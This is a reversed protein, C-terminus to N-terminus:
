RRRQRWIRALVPYRWSYVPVPVPGASRVLYHDLRLLELVAGTDDDNGDDGVAAKLDAGTMAEVVLQDLVLQALQAREGYYKGVRTLFHTVGHSEDLDEICRDFAQEVATATVSPVAHDRLHAAVLHLLYPIGGTVSALRDVAAPDPRETVGLLLSEALWRAWAADLPGLPLNQMDNLVTSDAGVLPLVHYLGVSGTFVWRIRSGPRRLRRLVALTQVAAATGERAAISEVMDPVEDWLLVLVAGGLAVDVETFGRELADMPDRAMAPALTVPGVGAVRNLYAGASQRARRALPRHGAVGHLARAVMDARTAVGQFSQQVAHVGPQAAAQMRHLLLTKGFRRPENLLLSSGEALRQMSWVITDDRGFVGSADLSAGPLANLPRAPEVPPGPALLVPPM